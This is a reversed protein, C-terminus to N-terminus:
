GEATNFAVVRLANDYQGTLFNQITRELDAKAPETEDYAVGVLQSAENHEFQDGDTREPCPRKQIAKPGRAILRESSRNQGTPECDAQKRSDNNHDGTVVPMRVASFGFHDTSKTTAHQRMLPTVITQIVAAVPIKSTTVPTAQAYGELAPEGKTAISTPTAESSGSPDSQNAGDQPPRVDWVDEALRALMGARAKVASANWVSFPNLSNVARDIATRGIDPRESIARTLLFQSKSMHLWERGACHNTAAGMRMRRRWDARRPSSAQTFQNVREAQLAACTRQTADAGTWRLLAVL